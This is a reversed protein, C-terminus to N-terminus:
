FTIRAMFFLVYVLTCQTIATLVAVAFTGPFLMGKIVFLESQRGADVTVCMIVFMFAAIAFFAIITMFDLAPALGFEIVGFVGFIRELASVAVHATGETMLAIGCFLFIFGFAMHTVAKIIYMSTFLTLLALTTVVLGTPTLLDDEIMVHTAERQDTQM